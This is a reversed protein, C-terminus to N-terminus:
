LKVNKFRRSTSRNDTTQGGGPRTITQIKEKVVIDEKKVEKEKKAM